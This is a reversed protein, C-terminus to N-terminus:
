NNEELIEKIKPLKKQAARYGAEICEHSRELDFTTIDALDPNITIDAGSNKLKQFEYQMIDFTNFLVDFINNVPSNVESIRIDVAIVIDAGLKRTASVPVRDLLAGDVLYKGQHSFPVFIGPIAISARIARAVSGTKIVIREGHEIDCAIAAFPIKLDSFNKRKTLIQFLQLMKEGKILGKRPFTIDSLNDWDLERALGKMYKVPIDSAYLGGIISGMSTGAIVNIPINEKELLEIVGLHALGRAGGSGLALGIKKSSVVM